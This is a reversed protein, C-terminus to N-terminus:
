LKLVIFKIQKLLRFNFKYLSKFSTILINLTKVRNNNLNFNKDYSELKYNKTTTSEVYLIKNDKNSM